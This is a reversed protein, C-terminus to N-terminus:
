GSPITLPYSQGGSMITNNDGLVLRIEKVVNTPFTGQAILTDVGNQLGLLNYIGPTTQLSVWGTTDTALKVNVERLDVNVEDFAAPADTMRIQLTSNTGEKKCASLLLAASAILTLSLNKIKM